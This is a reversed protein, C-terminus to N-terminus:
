SALLRADRALARAHGTAYGQQAALWPGIVGRAAKVRDAQALAQLHLGHAVRAIRGIAAALALSAAGAERDGPVAGGLLELRRAVSESLAVAVQEFEALDPAGALDPADTIGTM